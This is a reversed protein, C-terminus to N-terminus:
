RRGGPQRAREHWLRYAELQELEAESLVASLRERTEARHQEMEDHHRKQMLLRSQFREQLIAKVSATQEESLDLQQLLQDSEPATCDGGMPSMAAAPGATAILMALSIGAIKNM